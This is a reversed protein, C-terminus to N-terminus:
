SAAIPSNSFAWSKASCCSPTTFVRLPKSSRKWAPSRPMYGYPPITAPISVASSPSISAGPPKAATSLTYRSNHALKIAQQFAPNNEAATGPAPDCLADQTLAHIQIWAFRPNRGFMLHAARYCGPVDNTRLLAYSQEVQARDEGAPNALSHFLHTAQLASQQAKPYEGLVDADMAQALAQAAQIFSPTPPSADPQPLHPPLLQTLWLDQHNRDLSAALAQLLTRAALCGQDCPSGRSRNVPMPFATRLLRPLLASGSLEEDFAALAAPDAALARMAEPTALHQNMRGQHTKLQNLKLELAELRRRGETLWNPDREFRLYRNWTEVANMVQGRDEMVVAENFLVVPDDPALEDARRLYELASARDNESGTAAGRQFYAAADDVLLSTTVPGAALLRDLIDIAPDYKEELLDARAQLQLWHPDQPSNELHREIRARADLLRSSEQDAAGGRLHAQPTVEAFGAGPIRLEFIRSHTYAEALLREPSNAHQWWVTLVAAFLLSAALGAGAWLYFRSAKGRAPRHPTHALEVALNHQWDRSASALGAIEAAEEPSAETSAACLREASPIAQGDILEQLARSLADKPLDMPREPKLDDSM